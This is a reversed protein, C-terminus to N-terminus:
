WHWKQVIQPSMFRETKGDQEQWDKALIVKVFTPRKDPWAQLTFYGHFSHDEAGFSSFFYM